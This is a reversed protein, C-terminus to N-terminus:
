YIARENSNRKLDIYHWLDQNRYTGSPKDPSWSTPGGTLEALDSDMIRYEKVGLATNFTLGDSNLIGVVVRVYRGPSEELALIEEQVTQAPVSLERPM